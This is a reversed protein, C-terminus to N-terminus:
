DWECFIRKELPHFQLLGVILNTPFSRISSNFDATLKNYEACAIVAKGEISDLESMVLLLEPNLHAERHNKFADKLSRIESSLNNELKELEHGEILSNTEILKRVIEERVDSIKDLIDIQADMIPRAKGILNPILERRLQLFVDTEDWWFDILTEKEKFSNYIYMCWLILLGLCLIVAVGAIM